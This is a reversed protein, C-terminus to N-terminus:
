SILECNNLTLSMNDISQIQGDATIPDGKHLIEVRDGGENFILMTSAITEMYPVGEARDYQIHVYFVGKGRPTVDYVAGSLRMWKGRYPVSANDGQLKTSGQYLGRLYTPTVNEGVYPRGEKPPPLVVQPLHPVKNKKKPAAATGASVAPDSGLPHPNGRLRTVEARERDLEEKMGDLRHRYLFHIVAWAALAILVAAGVYLVPAGKVAEWQAQLNGM